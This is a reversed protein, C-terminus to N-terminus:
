KTSVKLNLTALAPAIEPATSTHLPSTPVSSPPQSASAACRRRGSPRKNTAMSPKRSPAGSTSIASKRCLRGSKRATKMRAPIASLKQVPGSLATIWSTMLGSRRAVATPREREEQGAEDAEEAQAVDGAVHQVHLFSQVFLSLLLGFFLRIAFFRFFLRTNVVIDRNGEQFYGM